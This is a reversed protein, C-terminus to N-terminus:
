LIKFILNWCCQRNPLEKRFIYNFKMWMVLIPFNFILITYDVYWTKDYGVKTQTLYVMNHIWGQDSVESASSSGSTSSCWSSLLYWAQRCSLIIGAMIIAIILGTTFVWTWTQYYIIYEKDMRLKTPKVYYRFYFELTNNYTISNANKWELFISSMIWKYDKCSKSM